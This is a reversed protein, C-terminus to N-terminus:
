DGIDEWRLLRKLSIDKNLIKGIVKDKQEPPIGTGPKKLTLLNIDLVTGAPLDRVPALSKGFIGRMEEMSEAMTDKDVPSSIMQFFADRAQVLLKFDEVTLSAPTDPGFMRKDLVM